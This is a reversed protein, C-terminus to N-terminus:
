DVYVAEARLGKPGETEEFTVGQGQQAEHFKINKLESGLFFYENGDDGMIFGFGKATILRKIIGHM